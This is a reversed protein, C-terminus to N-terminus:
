DRNVLKLVHSKFKKYCRGKQNKATDANNYGLKEAIAKMSLEDCYYAVLINRCVDTLENIAKRIIGLRNDEAIEDETFQWDENGDDDYYSGIFIRKLNDISVFLPKKSTQKVGDVTDNKYTISNAKCYDEVKNKVITFIYGKLSVSTGNKNLIAADNVRLYERLINNKTAICADTYLDTIIDKSVKPYRIQMGGIVYSRYRSYLEGLAQSEGNYIDLVLRIDIEKESGIKM